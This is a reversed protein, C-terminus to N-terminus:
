EHEEGEKFAPSVGSTDASPLESSVESADAPLLEPSVEPKDAENNTPENSEADMSSITAQVEEVAINEELMTGVQMGLKIAEEYLDLAADLSIDEDAVADVIEDLRNKVEVFSTNNGNAM